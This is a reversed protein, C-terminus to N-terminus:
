SNPIHACRDCKGSIVVGECLCQMGVVNFGKQCKCKGGFWVSNPINACRIEDVIMCRSGEFFSGMPCQCGKGIM